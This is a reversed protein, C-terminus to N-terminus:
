KRWRRTKQVHLFYLVGEM